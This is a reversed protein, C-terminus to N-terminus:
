KELNHLIEASFYLNISLLLQATNVHLIKTLKIILGTRSNLIHLTAFYKQVKFVLFSVLICELLIRVVREKGYLPDWDLPTETWPDRDLPDWDLIPDRDLSTKTWRPRQGPPTETCPDRNPLGGGRHVSHCVPAFVNGRRLKTQPHYFSMIINSHKCTFSIM